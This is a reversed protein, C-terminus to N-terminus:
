RGTTTVRASRDRYWVVSRQKLEATRSISVTSTETAKTGSTIGASYRMEPQIGPGRGGSVVASETVRAARLIPPHVQDANAHVDSPPSSATSPSLRTNGMTFPAVAAPRCPGVGMTCRCGGGLGPSWM